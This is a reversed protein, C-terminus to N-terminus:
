ALASVYITSASIPSCSESPRSLSSRGNADAKKVMDTINFIRAYHPHHKVRQVLHQHRPECARQAPCLVEVLDFVDAGLEDVPQPAKQGELVHDRRGLGKPTGQRPEIRPSQLLM